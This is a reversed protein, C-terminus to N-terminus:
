ESRLLGSCRLQWRSRTPIKFDLLKKRRLASVANQSLVQKYSLDRPSVPTEAQRTTHTVAFQRKKCSICREYSAKWVWSLFGLLYLCRIYRVHTTQFTRPLRDYIAVSDALNKEGLNTCRDYADMHFQL